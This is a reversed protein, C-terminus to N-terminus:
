AAMDPVGIPTALERHVTSLSCGVLKAIARYSLGQSALQQILRSNRRKPRGLRHGKAKANVLGNRVREAVLDRELAAIASIIVFIAKGIPTETDIQESLSTFAVGLRKFTELAKLLHATNRAFRSFSYVIVRDITGREVEQMLRDLEPRSSKTGSQGREEYIVYNDIGREKCYQILSRSQAELGTEQRVTSTRCYLAVQKCNNSM